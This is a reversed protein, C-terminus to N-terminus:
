QYLPKVKVDVTIPDSHAFMLTLPYTDGTVLPKTLGMLMIHQQGPKFTIAKGIKLDITNHHVMITAGDRTENSHFMVQKAIPTTAGVIKDDVKSYNHIMLYAAGNKAVPPLAGSWAMHIQIGTGKAMKSHDMKDHKMMSHDMKDHKMKSHDMKDHKMKSHDMKTSKQDDGHALVPQCLAVVGICIAATLKSFSVHFSKYFSM